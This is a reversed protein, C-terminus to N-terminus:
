DNPGNLREGAPLLSSIGLLENLETPYVAISCVLVGFFAVNGAEKRAESYIQVKTMVNVFGKQKDSQRRLLYLAWRGACLGLVSIVFDPVDLPKDSTVNSLLGIGFPLLVFVYVIAKKIFYM